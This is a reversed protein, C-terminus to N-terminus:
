TGQQVALVSSVGENQADLVMAEMVRQPNVVATDRVPQLAHQM